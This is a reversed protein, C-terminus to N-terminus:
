NIQYNHHILSDLTGNTQIKTNVFTDETKTSKYLYKEYILTISSSDLPLLHSSTATTTTHIYGIENKKLHTIDLSPTSYPM